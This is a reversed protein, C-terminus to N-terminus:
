QVNALSRRPPRGNELWISRNLNQSRERPCVPAIGDRVGNVIWSVNDTAAVSGTTPEMPENESVSLKKVQVVPTEAICGIVWQDPPDDLGGVPNIVETLNHSPCEIRSSRQ